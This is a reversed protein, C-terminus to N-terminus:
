NLWSEYISVLRSLSVKLPEESDDWPIAVILRNAQNQTFMGWLAELIVEVDQTSYGPPMHMTQPAHSTRPSAQSSSHKGVVVARSGSRNAETLRAKKAM